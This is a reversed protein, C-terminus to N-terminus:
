FNCSYEVGDITHTGNGLEQCTQYVGWITAGFAVWVVIGIVLVLAGVIIGALALNNTYGAKKSKSRAILSLILGILGGCCIATILGAIALGKGPDTGPAPHSAPSADYASM